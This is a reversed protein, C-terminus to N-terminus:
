NHHMGNMHPHSEDSPPTHGRPLAHSHSKAKRAHIKAVRTRTRVRECFTQFANPVGDLNGKKTWTDCTISVRTFVERNIIPCSAVFNLLHIKGVRRSGWASACTCPIASVRFWGCADNGWLMQRLLPYQPLKRNIDQAM